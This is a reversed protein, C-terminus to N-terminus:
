LRAVLLERQFILEKPLDGSLKIFLEEHTLLERKWAEIDISQVAAFQAASVGVGALDVEHPRPMWGLITEAAGARGQCREVIWKLVRM